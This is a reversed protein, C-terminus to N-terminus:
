WAYSVHFKLHMINLKRNYCIYQSLLPVSLFWEPCFRGSLLGGSLVGWVFDRSCNLSFKYLPSKDPYKTRPRSFIPHPDSIHSTSKPPGPFQSLTHCPSYFNALFLMVYKISPGWLSRGCLLSPCNPWFHVGTSLSSHPSFSRAFMRM